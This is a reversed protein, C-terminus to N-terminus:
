RRTRPMDDSCGDLYEEIGLFAKHVADPNVGDRVILHMAKIFVECKRVEFSLDHLFLNCAGWSMSLSLRDQMDANDPWPILSVQDSNPNWCIM